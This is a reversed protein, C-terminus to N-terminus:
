SINPPTWISYFGSSLNFNIHYFKLNKISFNLNNKSIEFIVPLTFSMNVVPCHCSKDGCKGGCDDNNNSHQKNNKCQEKTDANKQNKKKCCSIDAKSGCANTENPKLNFGIIFILWLFTKWIYGMKIM